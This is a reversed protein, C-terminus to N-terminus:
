NGKKQEILLYTLRIIKWGKRARASDDVSPNWANVEPYKQGIHNSIDVGYLMGKDQIKWVDVNMEVEVEFYNTGKYVRTVRFHPVPLKIITGM